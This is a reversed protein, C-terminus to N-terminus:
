NYEVWKKLYKNEKINILYLFVDRFDIMLNFMFMVMMVDVYM